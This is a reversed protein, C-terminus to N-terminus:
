QNVNSHLWDCPSLYSEYEFKMCEFIWWMTKSYSQLLESSHVYFWPVHFINLLATHQSNWFINCYNNWDKFDKSIKLPQDSPKLICYVIYLSVSWMNEELALSIKLFMSSQVICWNWGDIIKPSQLRSFWLDFRFSLISINEENM